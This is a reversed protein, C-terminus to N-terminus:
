RHATAAASLYRARTSSCCDWLGAPSRHGRRLSFRRLAFSLSFIAVVTLPRSGTDRARNIVSLLERNAERPGGGGAGRGREAVAAAGLWQWFQHHEHARLIWWVERSVTGARVERRTCSNRRRM